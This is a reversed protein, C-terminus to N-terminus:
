SSGWVAQTQGPVPEANEWGTKRLWTEFNMLQPYLARVTPIDAEYGKDNMWMGMKMM